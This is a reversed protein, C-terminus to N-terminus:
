TGYAGGGFWRVARYILRRSFWGVGLDEMAHLFILDATAKDFIAYRYMFDHIVAAPAWAGSPPFINWLGRPVSAFDTVFGEPVVVGKNLKEDMYSLPATLLWNKGDLYEVVLENHFPM